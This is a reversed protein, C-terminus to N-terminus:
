DLFENDMDEEYYGGDADDGRYNEINFAEEDYFANADQEDENDLEESNRQVPVDQYENVDVM